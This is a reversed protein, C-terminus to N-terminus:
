ERDIIHTVFAPPSQLGERLFVPYLPVRDLTALEHWQFILRVGADDGFFPGTAAYLPSGSPLDILFYLGLEHQTTGTIEGIFFSEAIWLLREVYAIVALEEHIERLLADAAAEGLEVRGGPLFWWDYGEVQTLLIRGAHLLVGAVRYNFRIADQEFSIM